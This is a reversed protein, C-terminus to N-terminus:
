ELKHNKLSVFFSVTMSDIIGDRKLQYLFNAEKNAVDAFYPRLGLYGSYVSEYGDHKENLYEKINFFNQKLTIERFYKNM